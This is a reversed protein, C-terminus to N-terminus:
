PKSSDSSSCGQWGKSSSHGEWALQALPLSDETKSCHHVAKARLTEFRCIWKLWGLPFTQMAVVTHASVLSQRPLLLM